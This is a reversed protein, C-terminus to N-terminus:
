LQMYDNLKRTTHATTKENLFVVYLFVGKMVFPTTM